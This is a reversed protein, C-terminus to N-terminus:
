AVPILTGSALRFRNGMGAALAQSHTVVVLTAGEERNLELLLDALNRSAEEDLSGTPEDALLLSPGNILARVLATRQCEGGSLQAPRHHVREGLGVRSLLRLARQSSPENRPESRGRAITPLLVNELVSLQPLLHHLQFVFGIERNRLAAIERDPMGNLRRGQFWIEGSSPTDLGGMINLLTSKGSGSPGLVALSEGAAV